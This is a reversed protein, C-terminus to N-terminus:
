RRGASSAGTASVASSITTSSGPRRCTDRVHDDLRRVQLRAPEPGRCRTRNPTTAPVDKDTRGANVIPKGDVFRWVYPDFSGFEEQIELFGRANRIAAEIKQRNRVIGADSLLRTVERPRLARGEGRRLGRSARPLAGAQAPDDVLELGAQASELVLFEFHVRDDRVPVGWEEDHYRVYVPDM